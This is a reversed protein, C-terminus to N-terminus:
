KPILYTAHDSTVGNDNIENQCKEYKNSLTHGKENLEMKGAM